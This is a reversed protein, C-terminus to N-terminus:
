GTIHRNWFWGAASLKLDDPTGVYFGDVFVQATGPEVELFLSGTRSPPEFPCLSPLPCLRLFLGMPAFVVPCLRRCLGPSSSTSTHGPKSVEARRDRDAHGRGPNICDSKLFPRGARAHSPVAVPFRNASRDYIKATSGNLLSM